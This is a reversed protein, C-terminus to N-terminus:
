IQNGNGISEAEAIELCKALIKKNREFHKFKIRKDGHPNVHECFKQVQIIQLACEM